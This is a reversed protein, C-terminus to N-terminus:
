AQTQAQKQIHWVSLLPLAAFLWLGWIPQLLVGVTKGLLVLLLSVGRVTAYVRFTRNWLLLGDTPWLVLLVESFRLEPLRAICFLAWPFAAFLCLVALAVVRGARGLRSLGLLLMALVTWVFVPPLRSPTPLPNARASITEPPAGLRESIKQRFVDPLFMSDWGAIPVDVRRGLVLESLLLLPMSAAFGHEVHTRLSPENATTNNRRLSGDTISDLLDRIRTTCNDDFHRYNYLTNEPRDAKHLEAIVATKQASSLPLRQRYVTRDERRYLFLMHELPLVSVWFAGRGRLVGWTLPGPTSFDATGYNYCRGEPSKEDTICIAAHGFRTFVHEGPGMTFVDVHPEIYSGTRAQGITPFAAACVLLLGAFLWTWM